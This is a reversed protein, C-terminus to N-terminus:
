KKEVRIVAPYIFSHHSRYSIAKYFHILFLSHLIHLYTSSLPHQEYPLRHQPRHSRSRPAIRTLSPPIREERGEEVVVQPLSSARFAFCRIKRNYSDDSIM